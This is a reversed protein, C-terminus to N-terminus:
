PRPNRSCLSHPPVHCLPLQLPACPAIPFVEVGAPICAPIRAPWESGGRAAAPFLSRSRLSCVTGAAVTGVSLARQPAPTALLPQLGSAPASDGPESTFPHSCSDCKLPPAPPPVPLARPEPFCVLDTRRASDAPRHRPTRAPARGSSLRRLAASPGGDRAAPRRGAGGWRSRRGRTGLGGECPASVRCVERRIRFWGPGARAGCRGPSGRGGPPPPPPPRSLFNGGRLRDRGFM